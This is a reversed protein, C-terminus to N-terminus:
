EEESLGVMWTLGDLTCGTVALCQVVCLYVVYLIVCMELAMGHTGLANNQVGFYLVNNGLRCTVYGLYWLM